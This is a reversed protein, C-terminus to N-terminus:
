DVGLPDYARNNPNTILERILNRGVFTNKFLQM